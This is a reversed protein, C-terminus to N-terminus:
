CGELVEVRPESRLALQSDGVNKLRFKTTITTGLQVDGYDFLMQDIEASPGGTVEPTYSSSGQRAQSQWVLAGVLLFAAAGILALWQWSLRFPKPPPAQQVARRYKNSMDGEKSL